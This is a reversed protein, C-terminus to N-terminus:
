EFALSGLLSVRLRQYSAVAGMTRSEGFLIIVAKKWGNRKKTDEEKLRCAM